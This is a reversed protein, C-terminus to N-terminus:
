IFNFQVTSNLSKVSSAPPVSTFGGVHTLYVKYWTVELPSM